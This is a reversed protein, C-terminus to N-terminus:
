SSWVDTDGTALAGGDSYTLYIGRGGQAASMIAMAACARVVASVFSLDLIHSRQGLWCEKHLFHLHVENSELKQQSPPLAWGGLNHPSLYPLVLIIPLLWTGLPIIFISKPPSRKTRLLKISTHNVHFLSCTHLTYFTNHKLMHIYRLFWWWLCPLSHSRCLWFIAQTGQTGKYDKGWDKRSGKGVIWLCCCANELIKQLCFWITHVKRPTPVSAKKM